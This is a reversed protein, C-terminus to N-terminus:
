IIYKIRRYGSKDSINEVQGMEIEEHAKRTIDTESQERGEMNEEANNFTKQGSKL